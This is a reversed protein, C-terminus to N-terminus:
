YTYRYRDKRPFLGVLIMGVVFGGVHAWWAVGGVNATAAALAAAGYFFQMIFWLGLVILAPIEIVQVFVFIPVLTLVRAGPYSVFYAGLVGAIAGSAGISPVTVDYNLITHVIGAALGCLLYFILFSFHGLRDEVNDGFIWLYWMNGILHLWGGHLFMSTFFPVVVVSLPLDTEPWAFVAAPIVGYHMLFPELYPGLALEYFFVFVNILILFITIVPVSRSPINDRFPIM